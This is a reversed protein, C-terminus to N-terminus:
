KVKSEVREVIQRIGPHLATAEAPAVIDAPTVIPPEKKLTKAEEDTLYKRETIYVEIYTKQNIPESSKYLRRFLKSRIRLNISLSFGNMDAPTPLNGETTHFMYNHSCDDIDTTLGLAKLPWPTYVHGKHDALGDVRCRFTDGSKNWIMKPGYKGMVTDTASHHGQRLSAPVKVSSPVMGFRNAWLLYEDDTHNSVSDKGGPRTMRVYTKSALERPKKWGKVRTKGIPVMFDVMSERYVTVSDASGLMSSVERVYGSLYLLPRSGPSIIIEDLDYALPKLAVDSNVQYRIELPEYGLYSFTLPYCDASVTPIVGEQDTMGVLNGEQDIVSALPLPLRTDIDVLHHAWVWKIGSLTLIILIILRSQKM